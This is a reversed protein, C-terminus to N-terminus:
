RGGKKALEIKKVVEAAIRPGNQREQVADFHAKRQVKVAKFKERETGYPCEGICEMGNLSECKLAHCMIWQGPNLNM